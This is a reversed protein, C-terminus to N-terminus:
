VYRMQEPQSLLNVPNVCGGGFMTGLLVRLTALGNGMVVSVTAGAGAGRAALLAAFARCDVALGAYTLPTGAELPLAYVADPRQAAAADILDRVTAVTAAGAAPTSTEGAPVAAGGAAPTSM